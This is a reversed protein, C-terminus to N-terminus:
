ESLVGDAMVLRREARAAVQPDHTVVVMAMDNVRLAALLDMVRDSNLSDLNGTPEDALLLGPRGAIARAIAVRQREGGSLTSPFASLRHGLGVRDLAEAARERREARAVQQYLLAVEVNELATRTNMLHFAQFIFGISHGRLRSLADDNLSDARQGTVEVTGSSPRDLLGCLNLLTSKGSGSPGRISCFDGPRVVLDTDKLVTEVGFTRTVGTLQLVPAEARPSLAASEARPSLM